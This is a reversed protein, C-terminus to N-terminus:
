TCYAPVPPRYDQETLEALSKERLISTACNKKPFLRVFDPLM